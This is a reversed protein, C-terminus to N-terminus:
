RRMEGDQEDWAESNLEEAVCCEAVCCEAKEDCHKDSWKAKGHSRM